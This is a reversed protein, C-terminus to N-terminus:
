YDLAINTTSRTKTRELCNDPTLGDGTCKTVSNLLFRSIGSCATDTLDFQRIRTKQNPFSGAAIALLKTIKKDQGFLALEFDLAEIRTNLDNKILLTLRCAANQQELKNLEISLTGEASAGPTALLLAGSAAIARLANKPTRM